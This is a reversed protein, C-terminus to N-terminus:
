TGSKSETLKYMDQKLLKKFCSEAYQNTDIVSYKTTNNYCGCYEEDEWVHM